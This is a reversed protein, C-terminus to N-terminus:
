FDDVGEGKKDERAKQEFVSFKVNPLMNLEIIFGEPKDDTAEFRVLTGVSPWAVKEEGGKEYTKKSCINYRKM